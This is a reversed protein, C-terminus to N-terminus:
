EFQIMVNLSVDTHSATQFAQEIESLSFIHTIMKEIDWKRSKMIEMVDIVDKPMYGGTGIISKQSYTLHLLDLERITKNVGVCVFRSEIKGKDMFLDFIEDAGSADIFCDIDAVSGKLSYASGFYHTTTAMFDNELTHCVKFGLEKAINLRFSSIDCIMVNEIGFYELAMACALGITGCGFVVYKEGKQPNARRAARCAVTFPEILCAVKDSIQSDVGYLSHNRKAHPIKIYESFGGITGARSPDNLAYLPYPYVREGVSFDTVKEGVAVVRSITEHGFEEGITIRHGTNAGQYYVAVDTGCISAYINKILVDYSDLKPIPLEQIKINEQGLYITSKM